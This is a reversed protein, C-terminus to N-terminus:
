RQNSTSFYLQIFFSDKPRKQNIRLNTGEVNSIKQTHPGLFDQSLERHLEQGELYLDLKLQQFLVSKKWCHSFENEANEASLLM